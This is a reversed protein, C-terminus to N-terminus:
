RAFPNWFSKEKPKEDEPPPSPPNELRDRIDAESESPSTPGNSSTASAKPKRPVEATQSAPAAEEPGKAPGQPAVQAAPAQQPSAADASIGFLRWRGEVPQFMLDFNIQERDTPFFGAIRLMGKPTIVPKRYLKPQVLLILALDLKRERMKAFIQALKDASNAEKFSPAGLDRLVTYNGTVNAQNLAILSARILILLVDDSPVTLRPAQPQTETQQPAPQSPGNQALRTQSLSAQASLILCGLLPTAFLAITNRVRLSVQWIFSRPTEPKDCDQNPSLVFTLLQRVVQL